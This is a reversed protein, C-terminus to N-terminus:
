RSASLDATLTASSPITVPTASAIAANVAAFGNKIAVFVGFGIPPGLLGFGSSRFVSSVCNSSAFFRFSKEFTISNDFM